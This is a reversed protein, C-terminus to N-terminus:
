NTSAEMVASLAAMLNDRKERLKSRISLSEATTSLETTRALFELQTFYDELTLEFNPGFLEIVDTIVQRARPVHKTTIRQLQTFFDRNLPPSCEPTFGFSAGATAGAGFVLVRNSPRFRHFSRRTRTPAPPM